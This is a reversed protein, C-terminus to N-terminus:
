AEHQVDRFGAGGLQAALLEFGRRVDDQVGAGSFTPGILPGHCWKLKMLKVPKM